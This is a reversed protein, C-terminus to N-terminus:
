LFVFTHNWDSIYFIKAVIYLKDGVIAATVINELAIVVVNEHEEGPNM